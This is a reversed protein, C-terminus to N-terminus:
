RLSPYSDIVTDDPIWQSANAIGIDALTLIITYIENLHIFGVPISGQEVTFNQMGAYLQQLLSSVYHFLFLYPPQLTDRNM